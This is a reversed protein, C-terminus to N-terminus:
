VEQGLILDAVKMATTASLNGGVGLGRNRLKDGVLYLGEVEPPKVDPLHKGVYGPEQAVYLNQAHRIVWLADEFRPFLDKIDALPNSLSKWPEIEIDPKPPESACTM